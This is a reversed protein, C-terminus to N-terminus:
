DEMGPICGPARVMFIPTCASRLLRDATSGWVWRSIGSRGHTAIVILDSANKKAYDVLQSSVSGTLVVKEVQAWDYGLKEALQDLYDRAIAVKDAEFQEIDKETFRIKASPPVAMPEEVRILVVKEAGCGKGIREVHPLVCEAMPSGDLPVMIKKYM